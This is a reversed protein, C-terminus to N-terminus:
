SRCELHMEITRIRMRSSSSSTFTTKVKALQGSSSTRNTKRCVFHPLSVNLLSEGAATVDYPSTLRESIMNQLYSLKGLEIISWVIADSGIVRPTHVTFKLTHISQAQVYLNWSKLLTWAPALYSFSLSAAGGRRCSKNCPRRKMLVSGNGHVTMTGLIHKVWSPTKVQSSIHCQCPCFPDCRGAALTGTISLLSDESDSSSSVASHFSDISSRRSCQHPDQPNGIVKRVSTEIKAELSADEDLKPIRPDSLPAIEINQLTLNTVSVLRDLRKSSSIDRLLEAAVTISAVIPAVKSMLRKLESSRRLWKRKSPKPTVTSPARRKKSVIRKVFADIESLVLTAQSCSKEIKQRFNGLEEVLDDQQIQRLSIEVVQLQM